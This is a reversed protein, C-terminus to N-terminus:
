GFTVAGTSCSLTSTGDAHPVVTLRDSIRQKMEAVHSIVGVSRGGTRLAGLQTMVADLAEPDLSGFGEDIFLTRLEVGGAEATVADALGLALALSAQFTEGGSLTRPDRGRDHAHRDIVELGLGQKFSRGERENTRRLEYRGHTMGELRVNALDVVEEFRQLLVFTPLTVQRLNGEGGEALAAMRLYPAAQADVKNISQIAKEVLTAATQMHDTQLRLGQQQSVAEKYADTATDVKVKFSALDVPEAHAVEVLQPSALGDQVRTLEREYGAVQAQLQTRVKPSRMSELAASEDVFGQEAIVAVLESQRVERQRIAESASNLLTILQDAFTARSELVSVRAAVSPFDGRSAAITAQDTFLQQQATKLTTESAIIRQQRQNLQDRAQELATQHGQHQERLTRVRESATRSVTAQVVAQEYSERADIVSCGAADHEFHAIRDAVKTTAERAARHQAQAQALEVELQEVHDRDIADDLRTAPTPHDVSGCVPCPMDPQLEQALEGALGQLWINRARQHRQGAADAADAQQQEVSRAEALQRQLKEINEAAKLVREAEQVAIRDSTETEAVTEAEALTTELAKIDAQLDDLSQRKTSAEARLAALAEEQQAIAQERTPLTSELTAVAALEGLSTRAQRSAETLTELAVLDALDAHESGIAKERHAALAGQADEVARLAQQVANFPRRVHEAHEAATWEARASDITDRQAALAELEAELARRKEINRNRQHQEAHQQEAQQYLKETAAVADDAATLQQAITASREAVLTRIQDHDLGDEIDSGSAQAFRDVARTLATRAEDYRRRYERALDSLNKQLTEYMQTGFIDQLLDRRDEPKARLFAAFHGQPLVVTQTFQEKSLGIARRLEANGDSNSTSVLVGEDDLSSLKWVQISANAKTTGIGRKKPREYEPTRRVRYLGRATDVTLDVYPTQGALLHTSVLRGKSSDHGAVDGYLAFVIADILTTKGAGTPGEVLFLGAESLAAVDVVHPKVFPGIGAFELRLIQM